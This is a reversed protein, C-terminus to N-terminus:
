RSSGFIEDLLTSMPILKFREMNDKYIYRTDKDYESQVTVERVIKKSLPHKIKRVRSVIYRKPERRYARMDREVTDGPVINEFEKLTM